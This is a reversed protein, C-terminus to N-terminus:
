GVIYVFRFAMENGTRAFYKAFNDAIVMKM